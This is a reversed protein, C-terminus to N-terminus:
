LADALVAQAELVLDISRDPAPEGLKNVFDGATNIQYTRSFAEIVAQATAEAMVVPQDLSSM